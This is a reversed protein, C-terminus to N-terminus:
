PGASPALHHDIQQLLRDPPACADCNWVRVTGDDHTTLMRRGDRAFSVSEVSAGFGAFTLPQGAADARWVRVTADHGASAVWRGDASFAVYWVMGQHARHVLPAGRGDVPWVRVTGDSGASAVRRGDPSFAVAWVLGQHGRLVVPPAVGGTDWVRVTGDAGGTAIHLGDPSFAAFRIQDEDAKRVLATGSGDAPWVRLTGDIGATAVRRMDPSFSATWVVGSHGRLVVPPKTGNLDWIRVTGDRGASAVHRGDPAATVGLVEGRHGRLLRRRGTDLDWVSVVGDMGGSVIRREGPLFGASWVADRHGRLLTSGDRVSWLRVTGDEGATVLRSGDPSFAASWVVRQHGRLVLPHGAGTPSWVRVTSDDSTTALWHGDRSFDLGEVTGDHGRLVVPDGHGGAPWVRATGDVGAGASAVRTGDPSFRVTKVAGDHGRLVAATKGTRLDWLRVTGDHGGSALRRGDPSFAVGVVPGDHGRLVKPRGKGGADRVRVTGDDGTSALRRGDPSFAVNWVTGRHGTLVLPAAGGDLSWVRVAGDTGATALRRGDPSFAPSYVAGQHGILVLPAGSPLGTADRAWVRVTGDSASAAVRTGDASWAVGLQRGTLGPMSALMRHDILAQRLATEAEGTPRVAYAQRAQRLAREPDFQSQSRSEAALQRSVAVDRQDRIEGAQVLAMAALVSVAIVACTLGGLALVVRRRVAGRERSQQVRGAALFDRELDNLGELPHGEWHALRAGRYLFAADRGHQEWEAAAETLKRHARLLERDEALWSRLRPWTRILAEHAITVSDQDATVLRGEILRDLVATVAASDPGSVLEARRARRRTDETGDGPAILRLVVRRVLHRREEPLEGYLREATMAIAGRVGGAARYGAVTLSAGRRRQWTELLTHSILPLAGSQEGAETVMIDVLEPAVKCGVREAPGSIALRLDEEDMPGVLVQRDRLAAVLDAHGACHAYFDARVGLVVRVRPEGGMAVLLSVFEAREREDRCLTFVEEFQDVVVLLRAGGPRDCLVRAVALRVAAPTASEAALRLRLAELPHEGPTLVVVPWHEGGAVAGAAVAPLLGARLVSSKGAGSAGFVALLPAAGLRACLDAVLRERGFFLDAHEPGFTALGRYPADGAPGAPEDGDQRALEDALKRWRDEWERVDGGCARVYALTVPLSPLVTGGAAESLATVSFNAEASLRRYSPRGAAERLRRLGFAFAHLLDKDPDLEREPRGM